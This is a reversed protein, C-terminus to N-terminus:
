QKCWRAQRMANCGETRKSSALRQLQPIMSGKSLSSKSQWFATEGTLRDDLKIKSLHLLSLM